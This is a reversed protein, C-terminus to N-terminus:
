VLDNSLVATIEWFTIFLHLQSQTRTGDPIIAELSNDVQSSSRHNRESVETTNHSSVGSFSSAMLLIM